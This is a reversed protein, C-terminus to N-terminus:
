LNMEISKGNNGSGFMISVSNAAAKGIQNIVDQKLQEVEKSIIRRPKFGYLFVKRAMAWAVREIQEDETLDKFPSEEGGYKTNDRLQINKNKIYDIFPQVPPMKDKYSFPTDFMKSKSGNVGKDQFLLWPNAYVKVSGNESQMTIDMISGSVVMDENQINQNIREIFEGAAIEIASLINTEFDEKSQGLSGLSDVRSQQLVKKSAQQLSQAM